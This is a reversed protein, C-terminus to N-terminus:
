MNSLHHVRLHLTVLIIEGCWLSKICTPIHLNKKAFELPLELYFTVSSPEIINSFLISPLFYTQILILHFWWQILNNRPDLNTLMFPHFNMSSTYSAVRSLPPHSNSSYFDLSFLKLFFIFLHTDFSPSALLSFLSLFM